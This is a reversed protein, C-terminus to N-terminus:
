QDAGNTRHARRSWHDIVRAAARLADADADPDTDDPRSVTVNDARYSVVLQRRNDDVNPPNTM